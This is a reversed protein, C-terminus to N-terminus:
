NSSTVNNKIPQGSQIPLGPQGPQISQVPQGASTPTSCASSTAMMKQRVERIKLQLCVKNPFINNHKNQFTQTAQNSPFVGHEQFLEMVLQRRTDLTRRLTNPKSDATSPTVPSNVISMNEELDQLQSVKFSEPNFDPGFFTNGQLNALSASSMPGPGPTSTIAVTVPTRPTRPTRPTASADSGLDDDTVSLKRKKRYSQVFLHPSTPLSPVPGLSPCYEPLCSFKEEFNVTELVKDMGDERIVKKFFSKKGAIIQKDPSHLTVPLLETPPEESSPVELPSSCSVKIQAPTPGLVFKCRSPMLDEKTLPVPETPLNLITSFVNQPMAELPRMNSLSRASMNITSTPPLPHKIDTISTPMPFYPKLMQSSAGTSVVVTKHNLSISSKSANAFMSSSGTSMVVYPKNSFGTTSTALSVPVLYEVRQVNEFGPQTTAVSSTTAPTHNDQKKSPQILRAQLVLGPPLIGLPSAKDETVMANSDEIRQTVSMQKFAGGTPQFAQQPHEGEGSDPQVDYQVEFAPRSSKGEKLTHIVSSEINQKTNVKKQPFSSAEFSETESELDTEADSVKEKCKLDNVEEVKLQFEKEPKGGTMSSSSKRREKNCWKWQPHAKFHAEKVQHALDHYKQKEETGLAYWWEGLIKSVTRNDQNPHKEHVVPRHRKSFIMFANMPRRIRDKLFKGDQSKASYKTGSPTTPTTPSPSNHEYLFVDDDGNYDMGCFDSSLDNDKALCTKGDSSSSNVPEFKFVQNPQTGPAPGQKDQNQQNSPGGPTHPTNPNLNSGSNPPADATTLFPVLSHWPYVTIASKSSMCSKGKQGNVNPDASQSSQGNRTAQDGAAARAVSLVPLLQTPNPHIPSSLSSLGGNALVVLQTPQVTGPLGSTGPTGGGVECATTTASIGGVQSGNSKILVPISTNGKHKGDAVLISSSREPIHIAVSKEMDKRTGQPNAPHGVMSTAPVLPRALGLNKQPIVYYVTNPAASVNLSTDEDKRLPLAGSVPIVAITQTNRGSGSGLFTSIPVHGVHGSAAITVVHGTGSMGAGAMTVVHGTGTGTGAVSVVHGIGQSTGMTGMIHGTGMPAVSVVNETRVPAMSVVNGVSGPVMNVNGNGMLAVNVNEAMNVVNESSVHAMNVVNRMGVSTISAINASGTPAMSVNASSLNSSCMPSISVINQTALPALNTNASSEPLLSVINTTNGPNATNVIHTTPIHQSSSGTGRAPPMVSVLIKNGDILGQGATKFIGTVNQHHSPQNPALQGHQTLKNPRVLEPRIVGHGTHKTMYRPPVPSATGGPSKWRPDLAPGAIPMFMNHRAGVGPIPAPSTMLHGLPSPTTVGGPSFAGLPTGQRSGSLSLLMNAADMKNADADRLASSGCRSIPSPTPGDSDMPGGAGPGKLSLHRSCFGRRQSEKQCGEKSCLRRWQKGNFKKRIGSPTSVVDGKKYKHPTAPLSRPSSPTSCPRGLPSPEVSSNSGRSVSTSSRKNIEGALAGPDLSISRGAPNLPGNDGTFSIDEKRLDDDSEDLEFSNRALPELPMCPAEHQLQPLPPITSQPGPLGPPATVSYDEVQDLEEHWPPNPLRLQARKVWIKNTVQTGPLKVLFQLPQRSIEYVTAEVFMNRRSDSDSDALRVCVLSGIAVQTTMPIADSIIPVKGNEAAELIDHYIFAESEGDFLVAINRGNQQLEKIVGACYYDGRWALVRHGLWSSLDIELRRSRAASRPGPLHDSKTLNLGMPSIHSSDQQANTQKGSSIVETREVNYDPNNVAIVRGHEMYYGISTGSAKSPDSSYRPLTQSLTRSSYSKAPGPKHFHSAHPPNPAGGGGLHSSPLSVAVSVSRDKAVPTLRNLELTLPSPRSSNLLVGRVHKYNVTGTHINHTNHTNHPTSVVSEEHHYKSPYYTNIRHPQNPPYNYNKNDNHSTSTVFVGSEGVSQKSRQSLDVISNTTSAVTQSTSSSGPSLDQGVDHSGVKLFSCNGAFAEHVTEPTLFGSAPLGKAASLPLSAGTLVVCGKSAESSVSQSSPEYRFTNSLTRGHSGTDTLDRKSERTAEINTSTVSSSESNVQSFPGNVDFCSERNIQSSPSPHESTVHSFNNDHPSSGIIVKSTPGDTPFSAKSTLQSGAGSNVQFPTAIKVHSSFGKTAQYSNGSKVYSSSRSTAQFSPGSKSFSSSGRIVQPYSGSTVHSSSTNIVQSSPTNIIQSSLTNIIQSSPTNIVQSPHSTKFHNRQTTQSGSASPETGEIASQAPDGSCIDFKSLDFKRKKPLMRVLTLDHKSKVGQSPPNPTPALELELTTKNSVGAEGAAADDALTNLKRSKTESTNNNKNDNTVNITTVTPNRNSNNISQNKSKTELKTVKNQQLNQTTKNM